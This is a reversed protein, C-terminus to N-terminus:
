GDFWDPLQRGPNRHLCNELMVSNYMMGKEEKRLLVLATMM